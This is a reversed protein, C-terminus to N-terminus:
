NIADIAKNFEEINESILPNRSVIMGFDKLNIKAFQFDQGM